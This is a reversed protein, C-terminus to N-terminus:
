EAKIAFAKLMTRFIDTNDVYFQSEPTAKYYTGLNTEPKAIELFHKAGFGKAFIPVLERTHNDSYWRVLPLTGAGQNVIESYFKDNSDPGQLFGNGHDTTVILLTEDWSSNKEVWNVTAEVALNFDIQEEVLRPLNNAHTAWDVAGGEVMLFFGKDNKSVVNLAGLTMTALDPQNELRNGATVGDRNFQLTANNPATGLIKQKGHFDLKGEALAIFDAKSDILKYDTKGAVLNEWTEKGGVFRFDKENKPQTAKGNKDFYPHGSGMIVSARGSKVAEQAIEAYNNRSINHSLFGAPTAHSWQVSSIVGLSRGSEVVYEGINKIRTDNNSWNIANNYTKQGSALATAAIASDTFDTQAYEYGSFYSPYSTLNGKHQYNSKDKNWLNKPDFKISNELSNTPKNSTNLPYTSAFLKVDFKDYVEKSLAGHRFYSAAKWTNIGAGDSILLIVNKAKPSETATSKAIATQHITAGVCLFLAIKSLKM